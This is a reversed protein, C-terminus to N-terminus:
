NGDTRLREVITEGRTTLVLSRARHRQQAVLGHAQLKVVQLEVLEYNAMGCISAIERHSPACGMAERYAAIALLVAAAREM